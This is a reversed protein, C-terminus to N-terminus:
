YHFGTWQNLNVCHLINFFNHRIMAKIKVVLNLSVAQQYAPYKKEQAMIKPLPSQSYSMTHAPARDSLGLAECSPVFSAKM